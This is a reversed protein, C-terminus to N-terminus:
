LGNLYNLKLHGVEYDYEAKEKKESIRESGPPAFQRWQRGRETLMLAPNNFDCLKKNHFGITERWADTLWHLSSVFKENVFKEIVPCNNSWIGQWSKETSGSCVKVQCIYVEKGQRESFPLYVLNGNAKVM